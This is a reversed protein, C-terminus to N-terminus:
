LVLHTLTVQSNGYARSGMVLACSEVLGVPKDCDECLRGSMGIETELNTVPQESPFVQNFNNQLM